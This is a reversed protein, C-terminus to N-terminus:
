RVTTKPDSQFFNNNLNLKRFVFHDLDDGIESHVSEIEDGYNEKELKVRGKRNM